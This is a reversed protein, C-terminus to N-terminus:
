LNEKNIMPRWQGSKVVLCSCMNTFLCWEPKGYLSVTYHVISNCLGQKPISTARHFQVDEFVIPVETYNQGNM